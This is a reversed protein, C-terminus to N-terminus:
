DSNDATSCARVGPGANRAAIQANRKLMDLKARKVASGRTVERFDERSWSLVENLKPRVGTARPAFRPEAAVPAKRNFPCVEQCVDCGFLWDGIGAHMAVPIDARHEITLYSVCRSADMEYPAPFAQTPCADLCARCSGCHDPVPEDFALELTTVIEGLVFYSGLERSLVMTNKGIWGIGALAAVERELIPATDVCVKAEFPEDLSARMRDILDFLKRKLVDHYDDGWAYRAIRGRPEGSEAPTTWDPPPTQHYSHAVVIVNKANPLIQAPNVRKEFHGHLYEM